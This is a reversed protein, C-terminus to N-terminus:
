FANEGARLFVANQLNRKMIDAIVCGITMLNAIAVWVAAAAAHDHPGFRDRTCDLGNQTSPRAPLERRLRGGM